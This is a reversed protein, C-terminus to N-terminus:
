TGSAEARMLASATLGRLDALLRHANGLGDTDSTRALVIVARSVGSVIVERVSLVVGARRTRAIRACHPALPGDACVTVQSPRPAIHVTTGVGGPIPSPVAVSHATM